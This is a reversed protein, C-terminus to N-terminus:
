AGEERKDKEVEESGKRRKEAAPHRERKGKMERSEGTVKRTGHVGNQRVIVKEKEPVFNSTIIPLWSFVTRDSISPFTGRLLGNSIM